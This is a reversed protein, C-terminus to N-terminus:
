GETEGTVDTFKGFLASPHSKTLLATVKTDVQDYRLNGSLNIVGSKTSQGVLKKFDYGNFTVVLRKRKRAIEYM